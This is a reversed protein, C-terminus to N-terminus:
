GAVSAVADLPVAADHTDPIVEETADVRLWALAGFALTAAVPILALDYSGFWVVFYGFSVSLLFGGLTCVTNLMGVVGGVYKRGIDLAVTLAVTQQLTIGAYVFGLLLLTALKNTTIITAITFVCAVSLGILGVSRRGWKLGVRKVMADSLYGGALNGFAGLIGPATSLFLDTETFGRGKVLFTHLWSIFFYLAFVYCFGLVLVARITSSRLALGWPMEHNNDFSQKGIEEIEAQTVGSKEAPTDRYWRYWGASWVLGIVALVFFSTRWGFRLQIPLIVLPALAGGAQLSMLVCGTARAREKVPFWRSLSVGINPLAGAEGAGFCFRTVLLLYYNSTLGTFATFASWWLVIRTLVRRAGVRDGMRGTPIEFLGYSLTFVGVVWGWGQPSIHLADQIRPGAVSIAIRDLYTIAALLCLFILVKTRSRM